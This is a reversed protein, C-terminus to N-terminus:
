AAITKTIEKKPLIITDDRWRKVALALVQQDERLILGTGQWTDLQAAVGGRQNISDLARPNAAALMRELRHELQKGDLLLYLASEAPSLQYRIEDGRRTDVLTLSGDENKLADLRPRQKDLKKWDRCAAKLESTYHVATERTPWDAEFLYAFGDIAAADTPFVLAYHRHPKLDRIGYKEPTKHYPAYRTILVDRITSPPELHILHRVKEAAGDYDAGDEGPLSMLYNWYVTVDMERSWKLLQINQLVHAGKHMRKLSADQLSEIGPQIVQGGGDVFAALQKRTVNSKIEYFLQWHHGRKEIEPFFTQYFQKPAILDVAYFRDHNHRSALHEMEQLVFEQLKPRYKMVEHLGCFSCQSKEGWWCGRSSEFAMMPNLSKRLDLKEIKAFYPDYNLFPRPSNNQFLAGSPEGIINGQQSRHSVGKLGDLTKGRRWRRILEPFVIEGETRVVADVYPCLALIANGADGTCMSGGFVIRVSPHCLKIRRALAISAGLQQTSLSFGIIDHRQWNIEQECRDLFRVAAIKLGEIIDSDDARNPLTIKPREREFEHLWNGAENGFYDRSFLWEILFEEGNALLTYLAPTIQACFDLYLEHRESSFGEGRLAADLTALQISPLKAASWPMSVLAVPTDHSGSM